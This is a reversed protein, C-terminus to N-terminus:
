EEFLKDVIEYGRPKGDGTKNNKLQDAAKSLRSEGFMVCYKNDPFTRDANPFKWLFYALLAKTWKKTRRYGDAVKVLYGREIAKQCYYELSGQQPEPNNPDDSLSYDYATAFEKLRLEFVRELESIAGRYERWQGDTLLGDARYRDVVNKFGIFMTPIHDRLLEKRDRMFHLSYEISDETSQYKLLNAKGNPSTAEVLLAGYDLGDLLALREEVQKLSKEFDQDLTMPAFGGYGWNLVEIYKLTEQM